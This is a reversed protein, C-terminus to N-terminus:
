CFQRRKEIVIKPNWYIQSPFQRERLNMIMSQAPLCDRVQAKFGANEKAIKKNKSM